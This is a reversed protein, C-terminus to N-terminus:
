AIHGSNPYFLFAALRFVCEPQLGVSPATGLATLWDFLVPAAVVHPALRTLVLKAPDAHLVPDLEVAVVPGAVLVLCNLLFVGKDAFFL